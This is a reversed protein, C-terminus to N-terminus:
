QRIGQIMEYGRTFVLFEKINKWRLFFFFGFLLFGFCLLIERECYSQVNIVAFFDISSNGLKWVCLSKLLYEYM